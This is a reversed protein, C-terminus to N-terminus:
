QATMSTTVPIIVDSLIEDVYVDLQGEPSSYDGDVDVALHYNQGPELGTVTFAGSASAVSAVLFNNNMDSVIVLAGDAGEGQVIGSIQGAPQNLNLTIDTVSANTVTIPTETTVQGFSEKVSLTYDGAPLGTVRFLGGSRVVANGGVQNVDDWATVNAGSVPVGDLLVSGSITMGSIMEITLDSVSETLEMPTGHSLAPSFVGDRYTLDVMDQSTVTIYYADAPLGTVKFPGDGSRMTTGYGGSESSLSFVTITVVQDDNQAGLGTIMGSITHFVNQGTVNFDMNEAMVGTSLFVFEAESKSTVTGTYSYYFTGEDTELSIRYVDQASLGTLTYDATDGQRGTATTQVLESGNRSQAIVTVRKGPEVGIITGSVGAGQFLEFNVAEQDMQSLDVKVEQSTTYGEASVKVMLDNVAPLGFMRWTGDADVIVSDMIGATNSSVEVLAMDGTNLGLVEGSVSRGSPVILDIATASGQTLDVWQALPRSVLGESSEGGYCGTAWGEIDLCVEYDSVSTLGDIVYIGDGDVATFGVQRTSESWISVQAPLPPLDTIRGSIFLGSAMTMTVGKDKDLAIVEANHSPGPPEMPGVFYGSRYSSGVSEVKILYDDAEPLPHLTGILVSGTSERRLTQFGSSKESWASIDFVDGPQVNTLAVVLSFGRNLVLEIGDFLGDSIDIETSQRWAGPQVAVGHAEGVWYGDPYNDSRIYIRYDDSVPLDKIIFSRASNDVGGVLKVSATHLLKDSRAEVIASSDHELGHVVGEIRGKALGIDVLFSQSTTQGDSAEVTLTVKHRGPTDFAHQVRYGSIVDGNGFDWRYETIQGYEQNARAFWETLSGAELNKNPLEVHEIVVSCNINLNYMQRVTLPANSSDRLGISFNHVGCSEFTGDLLGTNSNLTLGQPLVGEVVSWVYPPSGGEHEFTVAYEEWQTGEPVVQPTINLFDVVDVHYSMEDWSSPEGSDVVRVTFNYRTDAQVDTSGSLHGSGSNLTIGIPLNGEIVSFNLPPIGGTVSLTQATPVGRRVHDLSLSNLVVSDYIQITLVKDATHSPLASDTVSVTFSYTGTATPTGEILASTASNKLSLGPPLSGAKLIWSYPAMGLRAQIVTSYPVGQRGPLLDPTVIFPEDVISMSFSKQVTLAPEDSDSVLISFNYNGLKSPAGSMVGTQGDLSLGDPMSGSLRWAYPPKGGQANFAFAYALDLGGDPIATTVMSLQKSVDLFFTKAVTINQADTAEITFTYMGATEPLGSITGSEVNLAVGAPMSGSIHRWGYPATGGEAKLTIGPYLIDKRGNPMLAPTVIAMNETVRLGVLATISRPVPLASDIVTLNLNTVGSIRPVGSIIGTDPDLYLGVPLQGSYQFNLPAIGGTIPVPEEYYRGKYANPMNSTAVNLAPQVRLLYDAYEVRGASDTLAIIITRHVSELPTGALIGTLRNLTLGQPLIGSHLEWRHVGFGGSGQLTQSYQQGVVGDELRETEILLPNDVEFGITLSLVRDSGDRIEVSFQTPNISTPVGSLWGNTELTMGDPLTGGTHFFRYPQRGGFVEIWAGYPDNLTGRPLSRTIVIFQELVELVFEREAYIGKADTVGISFQADGSLAPVGSLVGTQPNLTIGTPLAGDAVKWKWPGYGGEVRVMENWSVDVEAEPLTVTSINLPVPKTLALSLEYPTNAPISVGSVTRPRYGRHAVTIDYISPKLTLAYEGNENTFAKDWATSVVANVLPDGTGLDTIRGRVQQLQEGHVNVFVRSPDGVQIGHGGSSTHVGYSQDALKWHDDSSIYNLSQVILVGGQGNEGSAVWHGDVFARGGRQGSVLFHPPNDTDYIIRDAIITLVGGGYGGGGGGVGGAGLVANCSDYPAALGSVLQGPQGDGGNAGGNGGACGCFEVNGSCSGIGAIGSALGNAQGLGGDRGFGADDFDVGGLGGGNGLGGAGGQGGGFGGSGGGGGGAGGTGMGGEAGTTGDGGNGGKGYLGPYVRFTRGDVNKGLLHMTDQTIEDVFVSPSEPDFHNRVRIAANAGVRLTGHVKLVLQSTGTNAVEIGDGITLDLFEYVGAHPADGKPGLVQNESWHASELVRGVNAYDRPNGDLWFEEQNVIGDGDPDQLADDGSLPNLSFRVEYEDPMGDGDTDHNYLATGHAYEESHTLGDEDPDLRGDDPDLPNLERQVEFFDSMVDGDTDVTDARTGLEYEAFNSLGDQDADRNGDLINLPDLGNDLEYLDPMGDNDDDEDGNDGVGDNDTDLWETGDLPFRDIADNFTDGDDDPDINNGIGDQDTDKTETPDLPLDDDVDLTGDNDDDLDANNGIGDLDSDLWETGDLPFVDVTDPFTDGDDDEDTNNGIGDLDTDVSETNDLPFADDEDKVGDNDADDDSNDGIGDGDTDIWETGDLPFQDESDDVGDGDDDNDTNNGITDGDTDLTETPDLPFADVSDKVGDNDDDDDGNDGTGDGDTDVWESGDRPFLDLSDNVGDGDDDDDCIDGINDNDLDEQLPNDLNPCNDLPDVTGDQDTDPYIETVQTSTNDAPNLETVANSVTVVNNVTGAGGMRFTLSLSASAGPELSNLDCALTNDVESCSGQSTTVGLFIGGSPFTDTLAINVATDSGQNSVVVTYVVENYQIVAVPNNSQSVVLDAFYELRLPDTGNEAVVQVPALIPADTTSGTGLQGSNNRGWSLLTGDALLALSHGDDGALEAVEPLGTLEVPTHSRDTTGDGLQGADNRGWTYVTGDNKLAMTHDNGGHIITINSINVVEAPTPNAKSNFSGIGLQGRNNRGWAFVKGNSRRALSHSKGASIQAVGSLGTVQVPTLV